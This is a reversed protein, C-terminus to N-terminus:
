GRACHGPLALRREAENLFQKLMVEVDMDRTADGQVPMARSAPSHLMVLMGVDRGLPTRGVAADTPSCLVAMGTPPFIRDRTECLSLASFEDCSSSKGLSFANGVSLIEGGTRKKHSKGNSSRRQSCDDADASDGPAVNPAYKGIEGACKENCDSDAPLIRDGEFAELRESKRTTVADATVQRWRRMSRLLLQSSYHRRAIGRLAAALEIEFAEIGRRWNAIARRLLLRRQLNTQTDLVALADTWQRQAEAHHAVLRWHRFTREM